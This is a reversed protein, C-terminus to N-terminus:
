IPGAGAKNTAEQLKRECYSKMDAIVLASAKILGETIKAAAGPSDNTASNVIEAFPTLTYQAATATGKPRGFVKASQRATRGIAKDKNVAALKRIAGIWGSKLFGVGKVRFAILKRSADVLEQGHLPKEGRQKRQSNVIRSAFSDELLLRAGKAAKGKRIKGKKTLRLENGIQGMTYEIEAAVAAETEQLAKFALDLGKANCIEVHTKKSVESYKRMQASFESQNWAFGGNM